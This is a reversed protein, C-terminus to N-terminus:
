LLSVSNAAEDLLNFGMFTIILQNVCLTDTLAKSVFIVDVRERICYM